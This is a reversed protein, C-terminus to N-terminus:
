ADFSMTATACDGVSVTRFLVHHFVTLTGQNLLKTSWIKIESSLFKSHFLVLTKSTRHMNWKLSINQNEMFNIDQSYHEIRDSHANFTICSVWVATIRCLCLLNMAFCFCILNFNANYFCTSCCVWDLFKPMLTLM